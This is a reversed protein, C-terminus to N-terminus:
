QQQSQIFSLVNKRKIQITIKTKYIRQNSTETNKAQRTVLENHTPPVSRKKFVYTAIWDIKNALDKYVEHNLTIIKM